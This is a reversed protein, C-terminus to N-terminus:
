TLSAGTRQRAPRASGTGSRSSRLASPTRSWLGEGDIGDIPRCSRGSVFLTVPFIIRRLTGPLPLRATEPYRRTLTSV